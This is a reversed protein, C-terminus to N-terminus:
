RLHALARWLRDGSGIAYGASVFLLTGDAQVVGLLPLTRPDSRAARALAAQVAGGPDRAYRTQPPLSAYEPPPERGEPLLAVVKGGWSAFEDRLPALDAVVHRSPEEGPALLLLVMGKDGALEGLSAERGEGFELSLGPDLAAKVEPAPAESRVTVALRTDRGNELRFFRLRALVAGGELRHGTLMLYDGAPLALRDQFDSLRRDYDYELTQLGGDRLRALTFHVYYRPDPEGGGNELRLGALAPERLAPPFPADQWVGNQWFQPFRLAPDLRAPIGLTRLLAVFLIDRSPPDARRLELAGRPSLPARGYNAQLDVVINKRVWDHLKRPDDTAAGAVAAPLGQRLPLRWAVLAENAVRPALVYDVFRDRDARSAEPLGLASDLHDLLIASRTDRLDKEALTGLLALAWPRRVPTLSRLFAEIEGWNGASASVFRAVAEGDLGADRALALAADRTMFTAAYAARLNDEEKLRRQNEERGADPRPRPEPTVPPTLDLDLSLAADVGVGLRLEAEGNEAARLRRFAFRGSHRAWLVLDGLGTELGARGDSGTRRSAIPYLEASNYLLFQVEAGALPRGSGDLVRVSVNRTPAYRPTLNLVSCHPNDDVVPEAFPGPAPARTHVLMSRRAPESFWGMDLEPEPECAGLYRWRGEVWAEVWAHNDDTHAWRPTYCQRAPIGVARLASVAFTSEEGCRGWATKMTALPASTRADSPQYTVKEHCWHNVELAAAAMPLHQVRRRLEDYVTARFADLNENNVRLPLVYHRFLEEPVSAAWALDRRAALTARVADLFLTGEQDALDSLPLTAYLYRLLDSEAPTLPEAFVAFLKDARTRALSRQRAFRREVQRRLVPDAPFRGDKLEAAPWAPFSLALVLCASSLPRWRRVSRTM